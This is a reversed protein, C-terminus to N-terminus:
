TMSRGDRIVYDVTHEKLYRGAQEDNRVFVGKCGKGLFSRVQSLTASSDSIVLVVPLADADQGLHEDADIKDEPLYKFLIAELEEYMIPKSLYDTFGERLYMDRAGVIADATLAIVPVNEALKEDKVVKLTSTGSMGPMMQDLFIMDFSNERLYELCEPGSMANTVQIRTDSILGTIVEHNMENDDVILIRVDPAYLKSRKSVNEAAAKEISRGFDGIPSPDICKQVISVTFVTGSGYRSSVGIEGDMMDVLQKTINLGLGTGEINRNRTEELRSFSDFLKQQDEERIGIGSDSVRIILKERDMDYSADVSVKGEETYKIANNIINLMIQRVRIEDGYLTAPIDGDVNMEYVLGKDNARKMTMNVIDTFVSSSDYKVPIIEMKGSEIKSLDLIDNIISLLTKGASRIDLAHKRISNDTTERLIIEDMGIIANMPTRIEHSMNALFNSKANNAAVVKEENFKRLRSAYDNLNSLMSLDQQLRRYERKLIHNEKELEKIRVDKDM